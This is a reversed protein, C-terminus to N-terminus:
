PAERVDVVQTMAIPHLYCFLRYQGPTSFTKTYRGGRSKTGSIVVRPGSAIQVNHAFPDLWRWTITAGAPISINAPRFANDVLDVRAPGDAVVPTGPPRDIETIRGRADFGHLPLRVRPPEKVGDRRTWFTRRDSPLPPCSGRARGQGRALYVHTIAMVAPHPDRADYLARVDLVEGKRVPIGRRSLFYGTAIPGPEHLVPRLNYVLDDPRGYLPEHDIVTRGACEAQTVNMARAGGHLHAGAAVIRGDHPMRWGKNQTHTVSGGRVEYSPHLSKCGNARLWLPTVPTLKRGTVVRVRYELFVRRRERSHSMYMSQMRWRERKNLALGYGPPLVLRQREEGTGWFPAGRKGPCTTSRDKRYNIFVLHHLMVQRISIPRGKADVLRADMGVIYGDVKPAKVQVKPTKTEFGGLVVPGHRLM